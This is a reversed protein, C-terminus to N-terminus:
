QVVCDVGCFGGAKGGAAKKEKKGAVGVSLLGSGAPPWAEEKGIGHDYTSGMNRFAESQM